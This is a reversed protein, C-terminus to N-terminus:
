PPAKTWFPDVKGDLWGIIRAMPIAQNFLATRFQNPDGAHHLGILDLQRNFVPSGSSGGETTVDHRWRLGGGRLETLRGVGLKLPAGEPHQLIFLDDNAGAARAPDIGIWGRPPNELGETGSRPDNGVKAALRILAFDLNDPAPAANNDPIDDTPDPPRSQVLWDPAVSVATGARVQVGDADVLYDFRCLIQADAGLGTIVHQNTMVLDPGVLFGTGRAVPPSGALEIRCTQGELASLRGMFDAVDVFGSNERVIRELSRSEPRTAAITPTPDAVVAPASTLGTDLMLAALDPNRPVAEHAARALDHIWGEAEIQAIINWYEVDLAGDPTYVAYLANFRQALFLAFKAKAPFAAM